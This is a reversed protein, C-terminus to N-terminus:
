RHLSCRKWIWPIPERRLPGPRSGGQKVSAVPLSFLVHGEFDELTDRIIYLDPDKIYTVHRIHRGNGEPNAIEITISEVDDGLKIDLVKSNRPVDVWGQELSYTGASLNIPGGTDKAIGTQRTAFQVCAHSYSSIHWSTSSDFYGEIGSDM